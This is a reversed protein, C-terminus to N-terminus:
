EITRRAIMPRTITRTIPREAARNTSREAPRDASRGPLAQAVLRGITREARCRWRGPERAAVRSPDCDSDTSPAGAAGDVIRLARAGTGHRGIRAGGAQRAHRRM